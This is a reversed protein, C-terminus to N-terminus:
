DAFFDNRAVVGFDDPATAHDGPEFLSKVRREQKFYALTAFFCQECLHLEYREGDHQTGFGWHARLTAFQLGGSAVLTSSQCMDCQVDTVAEVEVRGTIKM